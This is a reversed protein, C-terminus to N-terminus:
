VPIVQKKSSFTVTLTLDSVTMETNKTNSEKKVIKVEFITKIM